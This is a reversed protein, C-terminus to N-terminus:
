GYLDKNVLNILFKYQTGIRAKRNVLGNGAKAAEAAADDAIIGEGPKKLSNKHADIAATNAIV